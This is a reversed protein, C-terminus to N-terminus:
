WREDFSRRRGRGTYSSNSDVSTADDERNCRRCGCGGYDEEEEETCRYCDCELGQSYLMCEYIRGDVGGYWYAKYDTQWGDQRESPYAVPFDIAMPEKIFTQEMAGREDFTTMRGVIKGDRVNVIRELVGDVSHLEQRGELVGHKFHLQQFLRGEATYYYSFGHLRGQEDHGISEFLLGKRFLRHRGIPVGEKFTGVAEIAFISPDSLDFSICRGHLEGDKYNLEYKISGGADRVVFRGHRKGMKYSGFVAAKSFTSEVKSPGHLLEKMGDTWYTRTITKDAPRSVFRGQRFGNVYAADMICRSKGDVYDWKIIRGHKTGMKYTTECILRGDDYLREPGHQKAMLYFCECTKKGREFRAYRGNLMDDVFEKEEVLERELKEVDVLYVRTMGHRKGDRYNAEINPMGEGCRIDFAVLPGHMKGDVYCVRQVEKYYGFDSRELHEGVKIGHAFEGKLFLGQYKETRFGHLKGQSYHEELTITGASNREKKYQVIGADYDTEVTITGDALYSFQLGDFKGNVIKGKGSLYRMPGPGGYINRLAYYIGSNHKFRIDGGVNVRTFTDDFAWAADLQQKCVNCNNAKTRSLELCLQHIKISSEAKSSCVCMTKTLFPNEEEAPEMCVYCIEEEEM